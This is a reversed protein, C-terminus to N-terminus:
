QQRFDNRAHMLESFANSSPSIIKRFARLKALSIGTTPNIAAAADGSAHDFVLDRAFPSEWMIRRDPRVSDDPIGILLVTEDPPEIWGGSFDGVVRRGCGAGSRVSDNDSRIAADPVGRLPDRLESTEIWLCSM